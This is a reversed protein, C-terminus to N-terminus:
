FNMNLVAVEECFLFFLFNALWHNNMPILLQRELNM